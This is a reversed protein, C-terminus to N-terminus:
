IYVECNDGLILKGSSSKDPTGKIIVNRGILSDHIKAVDEIRVGDLLISNRVACNVIKANEGISAYPGICSNVVFSNDGIAVPGTIVSDEIIVNKGIHFKELFISKGNAETRLKNEIGDLILRNAELLDQPTGTDKWWGDITKYTVRLGLDILKQIADTIELEGRGSPKICDIADFISKDFVYIGTIILDSIFKKPKEVVGIVINKDVVAVGFQTPDDVRNLMICANSSNLYFTDIISNLNMNFLNDGLLMIFDDDNLFDAATKVAHALGLPEKQYIYTIDADWGGRSEISNIIETRNDGMIIGIDTIGADIVKEIIYFLIPKNAVPIMQKPRNFTLPKLRSGTGGSLILAKM